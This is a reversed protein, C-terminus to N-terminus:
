FFKFFGLSGLQARWRARVTTDVGGGAQPEGDGDSSRSGGGGSRSGGDGSKSGGHGSELGEHHRWIQLASLYPITLCIFLLLSFSVLLGTHVKMTAAPLGTNGSAAGGM